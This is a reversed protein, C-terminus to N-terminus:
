STRPYTNGEPTERFAQKGMLNGIEGKKLVEDSFFIGM